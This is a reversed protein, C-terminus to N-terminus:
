VCDRTEPPRSQPDSKSRQTDVTFLDFDNRGNLRGAFIIGVNGGLAFGYEPHNLDAFTLGNPNNSVLRRTVRTTLNIEILDVTGANPDREVYVLSSGGSNFAPETQNTNAGVAPSALPGTIPTVGSGDPRMTYIHELTGAQRGQLDTRNSQFAIFQEDKSWYPTKDFVTATNPTLNVTRPTIPQGARGQQGRVPKRTVQPPMPARPDVFPVRREGGNRQAFAPIVNNLLFLLSVLTILYVHLLRLNKL